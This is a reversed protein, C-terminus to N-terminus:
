AGRKRRANFAHLVAQAAKRDGTDCAEQLRCADFWLDRDRGTEFAAHRLPAGRFTVAGVIAHHGCNHCPRYTEPWEDHARANLDAAIGQALEPLTLSPLQHLESARVRDTTVYYHTGATDEGLDALVWDAGLKRGEADAAAGKPLALVRVYSRM